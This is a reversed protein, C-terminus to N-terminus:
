NNKSGIKGEKIKDIIEKTQEVADETEGNNKIVFDSNEEFFRQSHQSAFRNRVSAEDLGDRVTIRRLRIEEDATVSVIVNCKKDAGAEFLTPADLVVYEYDISYQAIKEDLLKDIYRFIVTNLIDLKERDSFVIRGLARRDLVLDDDFCEPFIKALECNCESGAETVERAAMDCNIVGFGNEKFVKSVLTKGAGSQGTLGIVVSM